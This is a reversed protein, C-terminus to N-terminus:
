KFLWTAPEAIESKPNRIESKSLPAEERRSSRLDIVPALKGFRLRRLIAKVRRRAETPSCNRSDSDYVVLEADTLPEHRALLDARLGHRWGLGAIEAAGTFDDAIVTIM